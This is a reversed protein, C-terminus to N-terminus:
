WVDGVYKGDMIGDPHEALWLYNAVVIHFQAGSCDPVRKLMQKRMQKASENNRIAVGFVNEIQKFEPLEKDLNENHWEIAADMLNRCTQEYGSGLGKDSYELHKWRIPEIRKNNNPM